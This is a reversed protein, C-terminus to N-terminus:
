KILDELKKKVEEYKPAIIPYSAGCTQVFMAVGLCRAITNNIIKDCIPVLCSNEATLGEKVAKYENEFYKIAKIEIEKM